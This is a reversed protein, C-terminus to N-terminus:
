RSLYLQTAIYGKKLITVLICRNGNARSTTGPLYSINVLNLTQKSLPIDFNGVSNICNNLTEGEFGDDEDLELDIKDFETSLISGNKLEGQEELCCFPYIIFEGASGVHYTDSENTEESDLISDIHQGM